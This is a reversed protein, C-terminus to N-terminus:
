RERAAKEARRAYLLYVNAAIFLVDVVVVPPVARHLIASFCLLMCIQGVLAASVLVRDLLLAIGSTCMATAVFLTVAAPRAALWDSVGALATGANAAAASALRQPVDELAPVFKAIGAILYIVGLVQQVRRARRGGVGIPSGMTTGM